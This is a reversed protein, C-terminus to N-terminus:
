YHYMTKLRPKRMLLCGGVIVATGILICVSAELCGVIFMFKLIYNEELVMLEPVLCSGPVQEMYYVTVETGVEYRSNYVSWEKEYWNGEEDYYGVITIKNEPDAEIVSADIGEMMGISRLTDPDYVAKKYMSSSMFLVGFLQWGGILFGIVIALIGLGILFCGGIRRGVM